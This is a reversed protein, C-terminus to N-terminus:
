DIELLVDTPTKGGRPAAAHLKDTAERYDVEPCNNCFCSPANYDFQWMRVLGKALYDTEEKDDATEQGTSGHRAPGEGNAPQPANTEDADSSGPSQADEPCLFSFGRADSAQCRQKYVKDDPIFRCHKNGSDRFTQASKDGERFSCETTM